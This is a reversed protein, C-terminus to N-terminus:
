YVEKTAVVPRNHWKQDSTSLRDLVTSTDSEPTESRHPVRGVSNMALLNCTSQTRQIDIYRDTLDDQNLLSCLFESAFQNSGIFDRCDTSWTTSSTWNCNAGPWEGNTPILTEGRKANLKMTTQPIAPFRLTESPNARSQRFRSIASLIIKKIFASRFDEKAELEAREKLVRRVVKGTSNKPISDIFVIGGELSKYKALYTSMFAKVVTANLQSGPRKVIYARPAEDTSNVATIGIVACDLVDSHLMLVSELEAPSVQWGRVKIM